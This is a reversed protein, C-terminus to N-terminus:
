SKVMAQGHVSRQNKWVQDQGDPRGFMALQHTGDARIIKYRPKNNLHIIQYDVVLVKRDLLTAETYVDDGKDPVIELHQKLDEVDENIKRRKAAKQAPTENISKIARNEEEMIGKGRDKSKTEVPKKATSEKKPDRIVVGKRRRTSAIAVRVEDRDLDAIMREQNSVDEIDTDASSENTVDKRKNQLRQLASLSDAKASPNYATVDALKKDKAGHTIRVSLEEQMGKEVAKSVAAGLAYMYEASNLFRVIALK